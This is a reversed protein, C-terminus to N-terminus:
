RRDVVVMISAGPFLTNIRMMIYPVAPQPSYVVVTDDSVGVSWIPCADDGQLQSSVLACLTNADDPIADPSTAIRVNTIGPMTGLTVSRDLCAAPDTFPGELQPGDGTNYSIISRM